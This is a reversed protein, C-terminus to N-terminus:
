DHRSIELNLSDKPVILCIRACEECIERTAQDFGEPYIYRGELIQQAIATTANYGLLGCLQGNCVPAAEALYFRKRHINDFIAQQITEQTVHETVIGNEEDEILVKCVSGSRAKGM